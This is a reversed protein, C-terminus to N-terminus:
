FSLPLLGGQFRQKKKSELLVQLLPENLIPEWEALLSLVLRMAQYKASKAESADGLGIRVIWV